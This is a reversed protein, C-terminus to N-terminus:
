RAILLIQALAIDPNVLGVIQQASTSLPVQGDLMETSGDAREVLARGERYLVTVETATNVNSASWREAAGLVVLLITAWSV